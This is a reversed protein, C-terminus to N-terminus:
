PSLRHIENGEDEKGSNYEVYKDACRENECTGDICPIIPPKVTGVFCGCVFVPLLGGPVKKLHLVYETPQSPSFVDHFYERWRLRVKGSSENEGILADVSMM